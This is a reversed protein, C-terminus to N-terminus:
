PSLVALLAFLSPVLYSRWMYHPVVIEGVVSEIHLQNFLM